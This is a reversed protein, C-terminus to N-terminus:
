LTHPKCISQLFFYYQYNYKAAIILVILENLPLSSWEGYFLYMVFPVFQIKQVRYEFFQFNTYHSYRLGAGIKLKVPMYPYDREFRLKNKPKTPHITRCLNEKVKPLTDDNGKFKFNNNRLMNRSLVWSDIYKELTNQLGRGRYLEVTRLGRLYSLKPLKQAETGRKTGVRYKIDYNDM